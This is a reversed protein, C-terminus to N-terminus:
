YSWRFISQGVLHPAMAAVLDAMLECLLSLLAVTSSSLCTALSTATGRRFDSAFVIVLKTM